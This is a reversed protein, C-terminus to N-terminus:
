AYGFIRPIVMVRGPIYTVIFLVIVEALIFPAISRSVKELPLKAIGCTIFLSIGVPPTGLGIILNLVSVLGFHLPNIGLKLAIPALIPAMLIVSATADMFTGMFLFLINVVFLFVFSGGPLSSFLMGIKSQLQLVSFVWGLIKAVGIILTVSATVTATREFMPVLDSMKITRLIFFGVFLSYVVAVAGAETPTFIGGLIGGVVIIPMGLPWVADKIIRIAEKTSFKTTRRPFKRKTNMILVLIMEGVGILIGPIIGAMFLGGISVGVTAGYTVMIISPPIIPGMTSAAAILAASFDKPYGEEEMAPIM